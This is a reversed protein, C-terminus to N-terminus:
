KALGEFFGELQTFMDKFFPLVVGLGDIVKPGLESLYPYTTSAAQTAPQVLNLKAAYFLLVSFVFLYLLAYFLFGGIRNAWGLMVAQLSKEILRAGLKVLLVVGLFVLAFALFPLWRESVSVNQGLYEAAVASLKVAAALGVVVALFSFIAMVLGNRWGKFLALVLLGAVISDIFM